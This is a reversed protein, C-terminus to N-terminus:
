EQKFTDKNLHTDVSKVHACSKTEKYCNVHRYGKVTGTYVPYCPECEKLDKGCYICIAHFM